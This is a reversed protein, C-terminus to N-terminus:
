PTVFQAPYANSGLLAGPNTVRLTPDQNQPQFTTGYPIANLNRLAILHRSQSGVYSADLNLDWPM